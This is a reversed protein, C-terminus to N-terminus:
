NDCSIRRCEELSDLLYFLRILKNADEVNATYRGPDSRLLLLNNSTVEIGILSRILDINNM